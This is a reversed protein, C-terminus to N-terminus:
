NVNSVSVPIDNDLFLSSKVVTGSPQDMTAAQSHDLIVYFCARCLTQSMIAPSLFQRLSLRGEEQLAPNPENHEVSPAALAAVNAADVTQQNENIVSQWYDEDEEYDREDAAAADDIFLSPDYMFLDRGSLINLANSAGSRKAEAQRAREVTDQREKEKAEKRCVFCRIRM